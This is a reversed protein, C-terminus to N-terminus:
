GAWEDDTLFLHVDATTTPAVAVDQQQQERVLDDLRFERAVFTPFVLVTHFHPSLYEHFSHCGILLERHSVVLVVEKKNTTFTTTNHITTTTTTPGFTWGSSLLPIMATATATGVGTSTRATTTTTTTTTTWRRNSVEVDESM